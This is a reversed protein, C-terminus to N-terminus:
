SSTGRQKTNPSRLVNQLNSFPPGWGTTCPAFFGLFLTIIGTLWKCPWTIILTIVGNQKPFDGLVWYFTFNWEYIGNLFHLKMRIDSSAQFSFDCTWFFFHWHWSIWSVLFADPGNRWRSDLDAEAVGVTSGIRENVNMMVKRMASPFVSM